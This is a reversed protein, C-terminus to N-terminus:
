RSFNHFFSSPPGVTYWMSFLKARSEKAAEDCYPVSRCAASVTHIHSNANRQTGVTPDLWTNRSIGLIESESFRSLAEGTSFGYVSSRSM